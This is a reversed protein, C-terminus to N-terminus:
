VFTFVQYQIVGDDEGQQGIAVTAENEETLRQKEIIPQQGLVHYEGYAADAACGMYWAAAEFDRRM